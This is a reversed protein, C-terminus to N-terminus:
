VKLNEKIQFSTTFITKHKFFNTKEKYFGYMIVLKLFSYFIDLLM